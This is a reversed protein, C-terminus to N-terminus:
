QEDNKKEEQPFEHANCCHGGCEKAYPCGICTAGKKKEKVLYFVISSIILAVILIVIINSIITNM